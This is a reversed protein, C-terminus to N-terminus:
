EVFKSIRKDLGGTCVEAPVVAQVNCQMLNVHACECAVTFASGNLTRNTSYNSTLM